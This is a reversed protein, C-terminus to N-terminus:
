PRTRAAHRRRIRLRRRRPRPLVGTPRLRLGGTCRTGAPAQSGRAAPGPRGSRYWRHGRVRQDPGEDSYAGPGLRPHGPRAPDAELGQRAARALRSPRKSGGSGPTKRSGAGRRVRQAAARRCFRGFLGCARVRGSFPGAAPSADARRVRGVWSRGRWALPGTRPGLLFLCRCRLGLRGPGVSGLSRTRGRVSSGGSRRAKARARRSGCPDRCDNRGGGMGRVAGGDARSWIKASRGASYSRAAKRRRARAFFVRPGGAPALLAM